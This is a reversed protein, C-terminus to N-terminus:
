ILEFKLGMYPFREKAVKLLTLACFNCFEFQSRVLLIAVM